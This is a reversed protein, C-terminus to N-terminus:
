SRKDFGEAQYYISNYSTEITFSVQCLEKALAKADELLTDFIELEQKPFRPYQIVRIVMGDEAGGTYVYKCPTVQYCAGRMALKRLFAQAVEIDGAIHLAAFYSKETGRSVYNLEKM